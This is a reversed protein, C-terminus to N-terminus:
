FQVIAGHNDASTAMLEFRDGFQREIENRCHEIEEDHRGIVFICPGWSSQGIGPFGMQRVLSVLEMATQGSYAGGQVKEFFMGSRHGFEYLSEAFSDFDSTMVAPVIRDRVLSIMQNREEETVDPLSEFAAVEDNGSRGENDREIVLLIRWPEPFEIRLDLPAIREDRKKGRDILLGGRFFGFTGIASRNGRKVSQGIESPGVINADLLKSIAVAVSIALQTGSGLGRHRPAIASVDIRVPLQDVLSVDKLPALDMIRFHSYWHEVASRCANPELGSITLHTASSAKVITRPAKVMLGMGGFRREVKEGISFLGFHLRSPSSVVVSRPM